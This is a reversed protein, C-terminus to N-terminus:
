IQFAKDRQMEKRLYTKIFNNFNNYLHDQNSKIFHITHMSIQNWMKM